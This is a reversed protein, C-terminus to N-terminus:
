EITRLCAHRHNHGDFGIRRQGLSARVDTERTERDFPITVRTDVGYLNQDVTVGIVACHDIWTPSFPNSRSHRNYVIPGNPLTEIVRYHQGEPRKGLSLKVAFHGTETIRPGPRVHYLNRQYLSFPRLVAAKHLLWRSFMGRSWSRQRM